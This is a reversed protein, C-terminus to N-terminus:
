DTQVTAYKRRGRLKVWYTGDSSVSAMNFSVENTWDSPGKAISEGTGVGSDNEDGEDDLTYWDYTVNPNPVGGSLPPIIQVKDIEASLATFTGPFTYSGVGGSVVVPFKYRFLERSTAGM